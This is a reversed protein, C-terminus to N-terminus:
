ITQRLKHMPTVAFLLLSRTRLLGLWTPDETPQVCEPNFLKTLHSALESLFIFTCVYNRPKYAENIQTCLDDRHALLNNSRHLRQLKARPLIKTPSGTDPKRRM